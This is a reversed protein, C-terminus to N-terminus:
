NGIELKDMSHFLRPLEEEIFQKRMKEMIKERAYPMVFYGLGRRNEIVQSNLLSQYARAVTNPNVGMHVASERLSPIKDGGKWDGAAIRDRVQDAIHQYIGKPSNFEM